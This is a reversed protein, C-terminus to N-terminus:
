REAIEEVSINSRQVEVVTGTATLIDARHRGITVERRGEPVSAQWDLHWQSVPEAWTDCEVGSQHAWHWVNVRGCKAVVPAACTPCTAGLTGPTAQIRAGGLNALIM